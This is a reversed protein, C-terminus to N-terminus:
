KLLSIMLNCQKHKEYPRWIDAILKLSEDWERKKFPMVVGCICELVHYKAMNSVFSCDGYSGQYLYYLLNLNYKPNIRNLIDEVDGDNIENGRLRDLERVVRQCDRGDLFLSLTSELNITESVCGLYTYNLQSDLDEEFRAVDQHRQVHITERLVTGLSIPDTKILAFMLERDELMTTLDDHHTHHSVGSIKMGFKFFKKSLQHARGIPTKVFSPLTFGLVDSGHSGLSRRILESPKRSKSRKIREPTHIQIEECIMDSGIVDRHDFILRREREGIFWKHLIPGLLDDIYKVLRTTSIISMIKSAIPGGMCISNMLWTQFGGMISTLTLINLDYGFALSSLIITGSIIAKRHRLIRSLVRGKKLDVYAEIERWYRKAERYFTQKEIVIGFTWAVQAMAFKQFTNLIPVNSFDIRTTMERMIYMSTLVSGLYALIFSSGYVAWNIGCKILRTVIIDRPNIMLLHEIGFRDRYKNSIYTEIKAPILSCMEDIEMENADINFTKKIFLKQAEVECEDIVRQYDQRKSEWEIRNENMIKTKESWEGKMKELRGKWAKVYPYNVSSTMDGEDTCTDMAKITADELKQNVEALHREFDIKNSEFESEEQKVYSSLKELSKKCTRAHNLKTLADESKRKLQMMEKEGSHLYAYFKSLIYYTYIWPKM